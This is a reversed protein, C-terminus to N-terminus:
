GRLLSSLFSETTGGPAGGAYQWETDTPQGLVDGGPGLLDQFAIQQYFKKTAPDSYRPDDGAAGGTAIATRQQLSNMQPSLGLFAPAEGPSGPSQAALQQGTLDQQQGPQQSGPRTFPRGVSFLEGIRARDTAPDNFKGSVLTGDRAAANMIESLLPTVTSTGGPDCM